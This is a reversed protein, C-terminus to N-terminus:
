YDSVREPGVLTYRSNHTEIECGDRSVIYSTHAMRGALVPHDLMMGIVVYRDAYWNIIKWRTIRGMHPKNELPAYLIDDINSM